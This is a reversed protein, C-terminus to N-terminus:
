AAKLEHNFQEVQKDLALDLIQRNQRLESLCIQQDLIRTAGGNDKGSITIHLYKKNINFNINPYKGQIELLKSLLIDIM